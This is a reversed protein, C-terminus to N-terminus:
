GGRAVNRQIFAEPEEDGRWNVFLQITTVGSALSSTTESRIIKEGPGIWDMIHYHPDIVGPLVYRGTADIVREAQPLYAEEGIAVIRGVKIGVM